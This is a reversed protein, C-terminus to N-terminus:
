GKHSNMDQQKRNAQEQQIKNQILLKLQDLEKQKIKMALKKRFGNELLYTDNLVTLAEQYRGSLDLYGAHLKLTDLTPYYSYAKELHDVTQSFDKKASSLLSLSYYINHLSLSNHKMTKLSALDQLFTKIDATKINSCQGQRWSALFDMTKITVADHVVHNALTEVTVDLMQKSAKNQTCATALEYMVTGSYFMSDTNQMATPPPISDLTIGNNSILMLYSQRARESQPHNTYWSAVLELPKGWMTTNQYVIFINLAFFLSGAALTILKNTKILKNTYWIVAFIIGAISLYNRHEFYLELPLVTSEILHGTFFWAIAFAIVPQKKRLIFSASILALIGAIAPLTSWPTFLGRSIVYDDHLLTFDGMNPIFIHHLYDFLIRPETLLRETLTFNRNRFNDPDTHLGLYVFIAITPLIVTPLLWYNFYDPSKVKLPRLIFFEIVLIYTVLLIGNEKSLIAFLLSLGVGIFLTLFGKKQNNFLKERGYLYFILGSLMFTASLETMRQIIYLVTTTQMPHLLWIVSTILAIFNCQKETLSLITTLKLFLWFVLVGNLLHILINTYIFGSAQSPWSFDNLYFSALSLPRGTPGSTGQLIFLYFREWFNYDLYKELPSLSPIDDFIFIGHTGPYYIFFTLILFALFVSSTLIANKDIQKTKLM